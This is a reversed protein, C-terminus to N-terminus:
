ILLVRNSLHLPPALCCMSHLHRQPWSPAGEVQETTPILYLAAWGQWDLDLSLVSERDLVVVCRDSACGHDREHDCPTNPHHSDVLVSSGGCCTSAIPQICGGSTHQHHSESCTSKDESESAAVSQVAGLGALCHRDTHQHHACCGVLMHFLLSAVTVAATMGLVGSHAPSKISM